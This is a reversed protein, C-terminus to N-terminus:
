KSFTWIKNGLFNIIMAIVIAMAQSIIYHIKLLETLIYLFILNIILAALSVIFFQGWKKRFEDNIKEKFSWIKNLIFNSTMAIFFAIIASFLYYVGALDTLLFLIFLNIITGILGVIGFKIFQHIVEKKYKITLWM